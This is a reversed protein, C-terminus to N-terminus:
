DSSFPVGTDSSFPVSGASYRGRRQCSEHSPWCWSRWRCPAGSKRSGAEATPSGTKLRRKASKRIIALPTKLEHSLHDIIKGKAQDLVKLEQYLKANEVAITVYHSVASLMGLDHASFPAEKKNLAQLTGICEQHRNILPLCLLNLTQFGTQRDIERCFRSDEYPRNIILPAKNQFVWGAIGQIM